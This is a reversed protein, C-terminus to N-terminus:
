VSNERRKRLLAVHRGRSSEMTGKNGATCLSSLVLLFAAKCAGEPLKGRQEGEKVRGGSKGTVRGLFKQVITLIGNFVREKESM